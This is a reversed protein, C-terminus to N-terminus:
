KVQVKKVQIKVQIKGAGKKKPPPNKEQLGEQRPQWHWGTGVGARGMAQGEPGWRM